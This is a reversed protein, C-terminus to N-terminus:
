RPGPDQIPLGEAFPEFHQRTKISPFIGVRHV